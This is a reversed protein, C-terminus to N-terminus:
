KKPSCIIVNLNASLHIKGEKEHEMIFHEVIPKQSKSITKGYFAELEFIILRLAEDFSPYVWETWVIKEAEIEFFNPLVELLGKEKGFLEPFLKQTISKLDHQKSKVIILKGTKKLIKEKIHALVEEYNNFGPWAILDYDFKDIPNLKEIKGNIIRTNPEKIHSLLAKNTDIATVKIHKSLPIALRGIGAGIDIITDNSKFTVLSLITNLEVNTKDYYKCDKVFLEVFDEDDMPTIFLYKM